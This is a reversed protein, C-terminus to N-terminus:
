LDVSDFDLKSSCLSRSNPMPLTNLEEITDSKSNTMNDSPTLFNFLFFVLSFLGYYIRRNKFSHGRGLALKQILCNTRCSPAFNSNTILFDMPIRTIVISIWNSVFPGTLQLLSDLQGSIHLLFFRALREHFATGARAVHWFGAAHFIACGPIM